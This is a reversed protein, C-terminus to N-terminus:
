VYSKDGEHQGPVPQHPLRFTAYVMIYISFNLNSIWFKLKGLKLLFLFLSIGLIALLINIYDANFVWLNVCFSDFARISVSESRFGKKCKELKSKSLYKSTYHYHHDSNSPPKRRSTKLPWTKSFLLPFRYTHENQITLLFFRFISDYDFMCFFVFLVM